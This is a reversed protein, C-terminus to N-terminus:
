QEKEIDIGSAEPESMIEDREQRNLDGPKVGRCEREFIKIKNIIDTRKKEFDRKMVAIEHKKLRLEQKLKYSYFGLVGLGVILLTILIFISLPVKVLERREIERELPSKNPM